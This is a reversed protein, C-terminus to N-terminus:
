QLLTFAATKKADEVSQIADGNVAMFKASSKVSADSFKWGREDMHNGKHGASLVCVLTTAGDTWQTRCPGTLGDGGCEDCVM